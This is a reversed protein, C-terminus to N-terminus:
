DVVNLFSQGYDRPREAPKKSRKGIWSFFQARTIPDKPLYVVVHNVYRSNDWEYPQIEAAFVKTAGAAYAAEVWAISQATTKSSWLSRYDAESSGKLWSLAERTNRAVIWEPALVDDMLAEWFYKKDDQEIVRRHMEAAFKPNQKGIARVRAAV